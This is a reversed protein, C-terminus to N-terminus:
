SPCMLSLEMQVGLLSLLALRVTLDWPVCAVLAQSILVQDQPISVWDVSSVLIVTVLHQM